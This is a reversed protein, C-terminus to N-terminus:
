PKIVLGKLAGRSTAYINRYAKEAMLKNLRNVEEEAISDSLRNYRDSSSIIYGYKPSIPYYLDLAAPTIIPQSGQASDHINIVPHDTTIFDVSTNNRVFVHSDTTITSLLSHALSIANRYSLYWSNRRYLEVYKGWLNREDPYAQMVQQTMDRIKKTRFLQHSLYHCFSTMYKKDSLCKENGCILEEMVPKALTEIACHTNEFSNAEMARALNKLEFYEPKGKYDETIRIIRSMNSFWLLQEEQFERLSENDPLPWKRIYAVDEDLLEGIKYFDQQQSLGDPSDQSINNKPTRYWVGKEGAAWQRLYFAWVYHHRRKIQLSKKYM